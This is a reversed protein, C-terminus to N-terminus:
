YWLASGMWTKVILHHLPTKERKPGSYALVGQVSKKFEEYHKTYGVKQLLRYQELETYFSYLRADSELINIIKNNDNKNFKPKCEIIYFVDDKYAVLDPKYSFKSGKEGTSEKIEIVPLHDVGRAPQGALVAFGNDILWQKSGNYVEEENLM